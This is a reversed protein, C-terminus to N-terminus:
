QALNQFKRGIRHVEQEIWDIHSCKCFPLYIFEELFKFVPYKLSIIFIKNTAHVNATHETIHCYWEYIYIEQWHECQTCNLFFIEFIYYIVKAFYQKLIYYVRRSHYIFSYAHTQGRAKSSFIHFCLIHWEFIWKFIGVYRRQLHVKMYNTEMTFSVSCVIFAIFILQFFVFRHYKIIL